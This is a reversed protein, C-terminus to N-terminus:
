FTSSSELTLALTSLPTIHMYIPCESDSGGDQLGLQTTVADEAEEGLTAQMAAGSCLLAMRALVSSGM